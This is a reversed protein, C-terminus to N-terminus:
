GLTPKRLDPQQGNVDLIDAPFEKETSLLDEKIVAIQSQEASNGDAELTVIIVYRLSESNNLTKGTDVTGVRGLCGEKEKSRNQKNDHEDAIRLACERRIATAEVISSLHVVSNGYKKSLENVDGMETKLLPTYYKVTTPHNSM